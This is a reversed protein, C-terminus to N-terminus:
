KVFWSTIGLAINSYAAIVDNGPASDKQAQEQKQQAEWAQRDSPPPRLSSCGGCMLSLGIVPVMITKLPRM